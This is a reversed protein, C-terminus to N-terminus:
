EKRKAEWSAAIWKALTDGAKGARQAEQAAMVGDEPTAVVGAAALAVGANLNLADAVATRAGGFSRM